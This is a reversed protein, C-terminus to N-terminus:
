WSSLKARSFYQPRSTESDESTESFKTGGIGDETSPSLGPIPKEGKRVLELDNIAIQVAEPVNLGKKLGGAFRFWQAAALWQVMDNTSTNSITYGAVQAAAQVEARALKEFATVAATNAALATRTATGILLDLYASDVYAM